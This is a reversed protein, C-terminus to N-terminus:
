RRFVFCGAGVLCVGTWLDDLKLPQGMSFVTFPVLLALTILAQTIKFLALTVGGVCGTRNAPVQLRYEFGAIGRSVVAAM